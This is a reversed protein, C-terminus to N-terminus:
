YSHKAIKLKINKFRKVCDEIKRTAPFIKKLYSTANGAKKGPFLFSIKPLNQPLIHCLRIAALSENQNLCLTNEEEIYM